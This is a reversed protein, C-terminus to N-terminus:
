NTMLSAISKEAFEMENIVEPLFEKDNDTTYSFTFLYNNKAIIWYYIVSGGEKNELIHVKYHACEYEGLRMISSNSNKEIQSELLRQAKGEDVVESGNFLLPTIRFNGKWKSPDFFAYTGEDDKYEEWSCPIMVSFWGLESEFKKFKM